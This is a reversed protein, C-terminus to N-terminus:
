LAPPPPVIVCAHSSVPGGPEPRETAASHKAAAKCHVDPPSGPHPRQRAHVVVSAPVWASTRRTIGSPRDIPTSSIRAMTCIAARRGVVPCQCITTISSASRNVSPAALANSLTTSSGGGDVTNRSHAGDTSGSSMATVSRDRHLCTANTVGDVWAIACTSLSPSPNSGSM